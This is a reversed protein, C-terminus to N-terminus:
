YEYIKVSPREVRSQLRGMEFQFKRYQKLAEDAESTTVKLGDQLKCLCTLVGDEVAELQANTSFM